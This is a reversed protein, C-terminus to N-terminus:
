ASSAACASMRVDNRGRTRACATTVSTFSEPPPAACPETVTHVRSCAPSKKPSYPTRAGLPAACVSPARARECVRVCACASERM